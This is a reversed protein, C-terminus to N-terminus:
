IPIWGLLCHKVLEPGTKTLRHGSSNGTRLQCFHVPTGSYNMWWFKLSAGRCLAITLAQNNSNSDDEPWSSGTQGNGGSSERWCPMKGCLSGRVLIKKGWSKLSNHTFIMLDSSASINWGGTRVMGSKFNILDCKKGLRINPRLLLQVEQRQRCAERCQTAAM